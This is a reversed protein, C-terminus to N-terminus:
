QSLVWDVINVGMRLAARRVEPPDNHVEPSAWGDSINTNYTYLLVWEGDVQIGYAAPSEDPHHEHIRPVDDFQYYSSLLPHDPGLRQLPRDPFLKDIERRAAENMGYDDDVYIFGGSLAYSRLSRVAELSLSINGHGTVYLIPHNFLEDDTPRVVTQEEVVPIGTEDHVFELLNPIVDPNNYWDGGGDYQLRAVSLSEAHILPPQFVFLLAIILVTKVSRNM